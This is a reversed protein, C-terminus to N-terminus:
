GAVFSHSMDWTLCDYDGGGGYLVFLTRKLEVVLDVTLQEVGPSLM